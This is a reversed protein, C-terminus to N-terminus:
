YGYFKKMEDWQVSDSAGAVVLSDLRKRWAEDMKKRKLIETERNPMGAGPDASKKIWAEFVDIEKKTLNGPTIIIRMSLTEESAENIADCGVLTGHKKKDIPNGGPMDPGALENTFYLIMMAGDKTSAFYKLKKNDLLTDQLTIKDNLGYATLDSEQMWSTVGTKKDKWALKEMKIASGEFKMYHDCQGTISNTFYYSTDRYFTQHYQYNLSLNFTTAANEILYNKYYLITDGPTSTSQESGHSVGPKSAHWKIVITGGQSPIEAAVIPNCGSVVCYVSIALLLIFAQHPKFM